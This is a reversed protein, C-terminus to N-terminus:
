DLLYSLARYGALTVSIATVTGLVGLIVANGVIQASFVVVWAPKLWSLVGSIQWCMGYLVAAAILLRM